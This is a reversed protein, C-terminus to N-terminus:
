PQLDAIKANVSIMDGITVYGISQNVRAMHVNETGTGTAIEGLEPRDARVWRIMHAKMCRGLGRGRHAPVM